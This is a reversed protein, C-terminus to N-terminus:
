NRLSNRYALPTIGSWSKFARIFPGPESYGLNLAIEEITGNDDRLYGVAAEYLIKAKLEQYHSGEQKLRHGLIRSNLGMTEAVQQLKPHTHYQSLHENILKRVRNTVVDSKKTQTIEERRISQFYLDLDKEDRVVPLDLFSRSFQISSFAHDFQVSTKQFLLQYDDIYEPKPHDLYVKALKINRKTLWGMFFHFSLLIYEIAFSNLVKGDKRRIVVLEAYKDATRIEHDLSNEGLNVFRVFRELAEGLTRAHVANTCMIHGFGHREPKTLLGMMEDNTLRIIHRCLKSLELISIRAKPQDLLAPPIDCDRLTQTSDFGANEAGELAKRAIAFSVMDKLM